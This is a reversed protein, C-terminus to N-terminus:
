EAALRAANIAEVSFHRGTMAIESVHVWNTEVDYARAADAIGLTMADYVAEAKHAECTLELEFCHEFDLRGTFTAAHSAGDDRWWGTKAATTCGGCLETATEIVDVEFATNQEAYGIQFVFKVQTRM